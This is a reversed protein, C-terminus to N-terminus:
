KNHLKITVDKNNYNYIITSNDLDTGEDITVSITYYSRDLYYLVDWGSTRVLSCEKGDGDPSYFMASYVIAERDYQETNRLSLELEITKTDDNNDIVYYQNVNMKVSLIGLTTKGAADITYLSCASLLCIFFLVFLSSIKKM